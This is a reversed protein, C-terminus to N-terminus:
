GAEDFYFPYVYNGPQNTTRVRYDVGIELVGDAARRPDVRVATVDIRPEYRRLAEEVEREIAVSLRTSIVDFPLEHIGCGFDPRMVREGKKTALIIRIAQHVDAEGAVLEIRGTDPRISFPFAWGRGLFGAGSADM